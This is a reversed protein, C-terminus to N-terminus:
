LLTSLSHLFCKHLFVLNRSVTKGCLTPSSRILKELLYLKIPHSCEIVIGFLCINSHKILNYNSKSRTYLSSPANHIKEQRAMQKAYFINFCSAKDKKDSNKKMVKCELIWLFSARTTSSARRSLTYVDFANRPNSDGEKRLYFIIQWHNVQFIINHRIQKSYM